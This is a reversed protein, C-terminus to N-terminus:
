SFIYSNLNLLDSSIQKNKKSKLPDLVAKKSIKKIKKTFFRQIFSVQTKCNDRQPMATLKLFDGKYMTKLHFIYRNESNLYSEPQKRM